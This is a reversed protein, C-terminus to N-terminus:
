LETWFTFSSASLLTLNAFSLSNFSMLVLPLEDGHNCTPIPEVVSTLASWNYFRSVWFPGPKLNKKEEKKM